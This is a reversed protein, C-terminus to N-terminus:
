THERTAITLYVYQKRAGLAKFESEHNEYPGELTM